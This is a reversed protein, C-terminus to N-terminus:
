AMIDAFFIAFFNDRSLGWRKALVVIEWRDLENHGENNLKKYLTIEHMGLAEAVSKMNDKNKAMFYRFLEKNM